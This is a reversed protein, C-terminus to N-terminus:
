RGVPIDELLKFRRRRLEAFFPRVDFYEEPGFVGPRRQAEAMLQVGISMGMSTGADAYGDYLPDPSGIMAQNVTVAKGNREGEGIALHLEHTAAQPILHGRRELNRKILAELFRGPAIATGDVQLPEDFDGFGARILGLWTKHDSDPLHLRWTFDRIGKDGIGESFPVTLPESHQSFMFATRGWPQPLELVQHGSRPPMERLAGGLFQQSPNAYEGLVTTVSYPPVLV